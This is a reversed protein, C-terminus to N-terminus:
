RKVGLEDKEQHLLNYNVFRTIISYNIWTWQLKILHREPPVSSAKGKSDHPHIFAAETLKTSISRDKKNIKSTQWCHLNSGKKKRECPMFFPWSTQQGWFMLSKKTAYPKEVVPVCDVSCSNYHASDWHYSGACRWTAIAHGNGKRGRAPIM